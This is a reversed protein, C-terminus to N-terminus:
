EAVGDAPVVLTPFRVTSTVPFMWTAGFLLKRMVPGVSHRVFMIVTLPVEKVIGVGVVGYGLVFEAANYVIVFVPNLASVRGVYVDDEGPTNQVRTFELPTPNVIATVYVPPDPNPEVIVKFIPQEILTYQFPVDYVDVV